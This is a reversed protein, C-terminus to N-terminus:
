FHHSTSSLSVIVALREYIREAGHVVVAPLGRADVAVTCKIDVSKIAKFAETNTEADVREKGGSAVASRGNAEQAAGSKAPTGLDIPQMSVPRGVRKQASRKSAGTHKRKAKSAESKKTEDQVM